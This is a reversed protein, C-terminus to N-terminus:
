QQFMAKVLQLRIVLHRNGSVICNVNAVSLLTKCESRRICCTSNCKLPVLRHTSEQSSCSRCENYCCTAYVILQLQYWRINRWWWGTRSSNAVILVTSTRQPFLWFLTTNHWTGGPFAPLGWVSQIEEFATGAWRAPCGPSQRPDHVSRNDDVWCDVALSALHVNIRIREELSGVNIKFDEFCIVHKDSQIIYLTSQNLTQEIANSFFSRDVM